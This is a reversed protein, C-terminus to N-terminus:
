TAPTAIPSSPRRGRGFPRGSLISEILLLILAGLILWKWLKQNEEKEESALRALQAESLSKQLREAEEDVLPIGWDPFVVAPDFPSVNGETPELNVAEILSEEEGDSYFGPKEHTTEGVYLTAASRISFGSHEFLSFLLPVFKSSLALQSEQPEWGSLISFVTGEGRSHEILAPSEGDFTALVRTSEELSEPLTLTRHKWFRVKTFDRIQARAFPQLIPHDFDLDALLAYDDVSAESLAWDEVGTLQALADPAAEDSPLALVLGGKEAFEGLKQAVEEKWSGAVIIVDSKELNDESLETAVSLRPELIPTPQLARRLYFLSSGASETAEEETLFLVRLPRAQVPSVYIENDFSHSDGEVVLIGEVANEPRPASTIIRSTGPAVAVRASTEPFGKWSLTAETEESETANRIRVRYVEAEEINARPPTAALNLTLNSANEPAISVPRVLVDDPWAASQLDTRRSGDQFDSIVVVERRGAPRDSDASVLVDAASTMAEGLNTGLWSPSEMEKSFSDLASKRGSKGLTAWAPFDAVLEFGEDFIALAVEDGSDYRDIAKSAAELSQEWLDERHMSASRDILIVARTISDIQTADGWSPLYPRGFAFALLLIALCRLLLLLIRELRTRRTLREPTKELFLHSSFEFHEKPPRRRLHLLIPIALAAAGLLYLPFLFSM